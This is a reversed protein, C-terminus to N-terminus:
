EHALYFLCRFYISSLGLFLFKMLNYHHLNTWREIGKSLHFQPVFGKWKLVCSVILAYYQYNYSSKIGTPQFTNIEMTTEKQRLNCTVDSCKETGHSTHFDLCAHYFQADAVVDGRREELTEGVHKVLGGHSTGCTTWSGSAFSSESEVKMAWEEDGKCNNMANSVFMDQLCTM